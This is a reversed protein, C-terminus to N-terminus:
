GGEPIVQRALELPAGIGAVHYAGVYPKATPAVLGPKPAVFTVTLEAEITASAPVGTDVDLGSPVDVSVVATGRQRLRNIQDIMSAAPERVEGSFGTGLIADVVVDPEDFQSLASEVQAADTVPVIPLGLHEAIIANVLADGDLDDVPKLAILGVEVGHNHLHRAIVYGDGGNNGGGCVVVASADQAVLHKQMELHDLTLEATSRGANEMLLLSPIGLQETCLRDYERVQERTLTFM